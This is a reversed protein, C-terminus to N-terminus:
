VEHTVNERIMTDWGVIMGDNCAISGGRKFFAVLKELGERATDVGPVGIEEMSRMANYAWDDLGRPPNVWKKVGTPLLKLVELSMRLIDATMAPAFGHHMAIVNRLDRESALLEDIHAHVGSASPKGAFQVDHFVYSATRADGDLNAGDHWRVDGTYVLFRDSPVGENEGRLLLGYARTNPTHHALPAVEYFRFLLRRQRSTSNSGYGTEEIADPAKDGWCPAGQVPNVPMVECFDELSLRRGTGDANSGDALQARLVHEWICLGREGRTMLSYMTWPFVLLPKIGFKYKCALLYTALGGTHDAHLHTLFIVQPRARLAIDVNSWGLDVMACWGGTFPHGNNQVIRSIMANNNRWRPPQGYRQDFAPDTSIGGGTGIMTITTNHKINKNDM